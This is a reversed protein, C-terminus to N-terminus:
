AAIWHSAGEGTQRTRVLSEIVLKRRIQLGLDVTRSEDLYIRAPRRDMPEVADLVGIRYVINRATSM